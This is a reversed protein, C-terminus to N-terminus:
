VPEVRLRVGGDPRLTLIMVPKPDHGSELAFRFKSVITALVLTAEMIAFNAGICVRRGGGFPIFAYRNRRGEGLFRGPDFMDPNEWICRNRHLAYIPLYIADGPRVDRGGLKDRRRAKRALLAAPPYLRLAENIVAKTVPLRNADDGGAPRGELVSRAENRLRDQWESDFALLYLSWALALATTEHGAFIFTVLNNRLEDPNMRRGTEPDHYRMLLDLFDPIDRADGDMRQRICPETIDRISRRHKMAKFQRVPRPVWPPVDLLDLLTTTGLDEVFEAFVNEVSAFDIVDSSSLCVEGIVEFTTAVAEAHLDVTTSKRAELRTALRESARAVYPSLQLVNRASFAPAAARRQWQWHEGDAVFLSDGLVPRFRNIVAAAKPYDDPCETLVRRIAAPDMVFHFRTGLRGSVMPQRTCLDPILELVNKRATRLVKRVSMPQDALTVRAPRRAAPQVEGPAAGSM